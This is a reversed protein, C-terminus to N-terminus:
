RGCCVPTNSVMLCCTCGAKLMTTLCDCCGHIMQCCASDGSTCTMVVGKDTTECHCMGMTFNCCCVMQGNMMMCCSCMGGALTNCLNQVMSCSMPDECVCNIKMGDKTKEMKFTGRPVMMWPVPASPYTGPAPMTSAPMGMGAASMGAMGMREMMASKAM